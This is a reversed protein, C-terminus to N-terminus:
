INRSQKFRNATNRRSSYGLTCGIQPCRLLLWKLSIRGSGSLVISTSLLRWYVEFLAPRSAALPLSWVRHFACGSWSSDCPLAPCDALTQEDAIFSRWERLSLPELSLM